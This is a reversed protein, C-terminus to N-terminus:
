HFHNSASEGFRPLFGGDGGACCTAQEGWDCCVGIAGRFHFSMLRVFKSFFLGDCIPDGRRSPCSWRYSGGNGSSSDFTMGTRRRNVGLLSNLNVWKSSRQSRHSQSPSSHHHPDGQSSGPDRGGFPPDGNILNAGNNNDNKSATGFILRPQDSLPTLRTSQHLGGGGPDDHM